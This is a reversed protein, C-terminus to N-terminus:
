SQEKREGGRRGARHDSRRLRIPIVERLIGGVTRVQPTGETFRLRRNMARVAENEALVEGELVEVGLGGPAPAFAHEIAERMLLTWALMATGDATTREYDLYFGWSAGSLGIDFFSVVGLPRGAYEFILVRRTPDASVRGWWSDHEEATIEHQTLSVARNAEQNRWGRMAPLDSDTAPRLM